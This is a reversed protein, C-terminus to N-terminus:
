NFLSIMTDFFFIFELVMGSKQFTEFKDATIYLGDQTKIVLGNAVMIFLAENVMSQRYLLSGDKSSLSEVSCPIEYELLYTYLTGIFADSICLCVYM